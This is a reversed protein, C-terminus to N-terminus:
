LTEGDLRGVHWRLCAVAVVALLCSTALLLWTTATANGIAFKAVSNAPHEPLLTSVVLAGVIVVSYLLQAQRRDPAALALAAGVAVVLVALATVLVILAVPSAIATGNVALLALWAIAQIPALAATALVKADVVDVLSPPAVRLLELTGREREEVLSDVVISGSIFAPLFLLLPLLITYTFGVYPSADIADPISLPESELRDVNELREAHEVAELTERLQVVLLTSVLGEDPVTARVVLRDDDTRTADVIAAVRGEDFADYATGPDDYETASLGDQQSAAALLEDVDTGTVAIETEPGDVANPDYMSVLGVVLFSSFAAIFLQIAIALLITKESRLSRLERRTIAWRANWGSRSDDSGSAPPNPGRPGREDDRDRWDHRDPSM